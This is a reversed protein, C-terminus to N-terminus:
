SVLLKDDAEKLLDHIKTADTSQRLFKRFKEQQLHRFVLDMARRHDEQQEEPSVLLVVGYVPEGDLSSFDIGRTSRGIAAVVQELGPIVAHPLAMGKGFGTTGRSRERTIISKSVGDVLEEPLRGARALAGVLERIAGNRDNSELDAIISEPSILDLLKM